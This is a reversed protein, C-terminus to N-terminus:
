ADAAAQEVPPPKKTRVARVRREFERRLSETLERGGFRLEIYDSTLSFIEDAIPHSAAKIV